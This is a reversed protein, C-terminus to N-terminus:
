YVLVIKIFQGILVIESFQTMHITLFDLRNKEKIGIRRQWHVIWSFHFPQIRGEDTGSLKQTLGCFENEPFLIQIRMKWATFAM